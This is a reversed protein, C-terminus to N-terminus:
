PSCIYALRKIKPIGSHNSASGIQRPYQPEQCGDDSKAYYDKEDKESFAFSRSVWSAGLRLAPLNRGENLVIGLAPTRSVRRGEDRPEPTGNTSCYESPIEM